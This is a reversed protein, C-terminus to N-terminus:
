GPTDESSTGATPSDGNSGPGIAKPEPGADLELPEPHCDSHILIQVQPDPPPLEGGVVGQLVDIASPLGVIGAAAFAMAIIARGAKSKALQEAVEKDGLVKGGLSSLLLRLVGTTRTDGNVLYDIISRLHTLVHSKLEDPLDTAATVEELLAEMHTRLSNTDIVVLHLDDSGDFLESWATLYNILHDGDIRTWYDQFSLQGVVLTGSEFQGLAVNVSLLQNPHRQEATLRIEGALNQLDTIKRALEASGDAAALGDAWVAVASRPNGSSNVRKVAAAAHLHGKLLRAPNGISKTM